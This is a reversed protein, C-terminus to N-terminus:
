IVGARRYLDRIVLDSEAIQSESMRLFWGFARRDRLEPWPLPVYVSLASIDFPLTGEQGSALIDEIQIRRGAAGKRALEALPRIEVDPYMSVLALYEWKHASRATDGGGSTDLRQRSKAEWATWLQNNAAPSWAVQFNPVTTGATGAFSEEMDTGFFVPKNPLLGFPQICITAPDVWLGGFKALLSARIWAIDSSELSVLPNQFKAPLQNWGGLKESLGAVGSVVEIRYDSSNQKSISEYCLNLFPLNLARSSRAGFDSYQRANPISTDYFIWLTPKNLGIQFLDKREFPNQSIMGQTMSAGLALAVVAVIGVTLPVM